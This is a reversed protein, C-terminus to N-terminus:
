NTEPQCVSCIYTGRGGLFFKEFKGKKCRSCVMDVKGYALTYRQYEGEQGDPTVFALESAGGYKLGESLVEHIADYLAGVEKQTLSSAARKPNIKALWLADNAYINGVGSIKEQDMLLVKINRKTKSVLNSFYPLDLKGFPEPGLKGVFGTNEVENTKIVKVWGFRRVDNYYLIGGKDLNFIILTHPGPVGGVIKKSIPQPDPLNPGKYVFQGTLKIHIVLSNGNNLDIVTVKGFRRVGEIKAGEVDSTEGAFISKNKVDLTAITHGVIYKNLQKKISEVEPLEPM